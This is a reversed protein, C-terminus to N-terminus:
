QVTRRDQVRGSTGRIEMTDGANAVQKAKRKAASKKIHTSVRRRGKRVQWSSRQNTGDDLPMVKIVAM